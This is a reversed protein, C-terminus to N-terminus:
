KKGRTILKSYLEDIDKVLRKYSFQEIAVKSADEKIKNYRDTNHHKIVETLKAAFGIVDDKGFYYGTKNNDVFDSIGGVNTSFILKKNAMAEIIAVPTGENKSTLTIYDIESYIEKLNNTFGTFIFYEQLGKEKIYAEINQKVEGDGIIVFKINTKISKLVIEAIDVFMEHNKIPALRGVIGVLIDNEEINFRKRFDTKYSKEPIVNSFDFGLKVIELKSEKTIKFNLLEEKQLQSIAIIKTSCLALMKELNIFFQTKRPSFYGQFVNGHFTHIITKVGM